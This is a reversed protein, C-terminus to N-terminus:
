RGQQFGPKSVWEAELCRKMGLETSSKCLVLLYGKLITEDGRSSWYVKDGGVLKYPPCESDPSDQMKHVWGTGDLHLLLQFVDCADLSAVDVTTFLQKPDTLRVTPRLLEAGRHTWQWGPDGRRQDQITAGLWSGDNRALM